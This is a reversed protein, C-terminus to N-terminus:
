WQYALPGSAAVTCSFYASDGVQVTQSQPQATIDLPALFTLQASNSVTGFPNSVTVSYTGAQNPQLNTLALVPDTAGTM